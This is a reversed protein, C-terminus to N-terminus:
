DILKGFMLLFGYTSSLCFSYWSKHENYIVSYVCYGAALPFLVM